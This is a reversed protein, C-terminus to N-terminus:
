SSLLRRFSRWPTLPHNVNFLWAGCYGRARSAIRRPQRIFNHLCSMRM